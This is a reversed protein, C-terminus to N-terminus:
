GEQGTHTCLICPVSGPHYPVCVYFHLWSHSFAASSYSGSKITRKNFDEEVTVASPDVLWLCARILASARGEEKILVSLIGASPM